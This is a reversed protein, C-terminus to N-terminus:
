ARSAQAPREGRSVEARQARSVAASQVDAGEWGEPGTRAVAPGQILCLM